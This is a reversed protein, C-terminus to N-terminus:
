KSTSPSKSRATSQMFSKLEMLSSVERDAAEGASPEYSAHEGGERRIRVTKWGLSRPAIFDKRPNDAIYVFGGPEGGVEAMIKRFGQPSPKWHARGLEDTVICSAFRTALGLAAIKNRQVAAYGDTLLALNFREGAAWNLCDAADPLLAIRPMHERYVKVLERVVEAAPGESTVGEVSRKHSRESASGKGRLEMLAQDFITGRLGSGFLASAAAFFGDIRHHLQLWEGAARFGSLVFESEAYLTDDLDFVLTHIPWKVSSASLCPGANAFGGPVLHRPM